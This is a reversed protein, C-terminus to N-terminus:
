GIDFDDGCILMGWIGGDTLYWSGMDLVDIMRDNKPSILTVIMQLPM